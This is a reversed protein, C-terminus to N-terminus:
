QLPKHHPSLGQWCTDSIQACPICDVHGKRNHGAVQTECAPGTSSLMLLSLSAPSLSPAKFQAGGRAATSTAQYIRGRNCAARRAGAGAQSGQGGSARRAPGAQTAARALRQPLPAAARPSLEPCLGPVHVATELWPSKLSDNMTGTQGCTSFSARLSDLHHQEKGWASILLEM